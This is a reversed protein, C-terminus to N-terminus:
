GSHVLVYQNSDWLCALLCPNVATLKAKAKWSRRCKSPMLNAPDLYRNGRSISLLSLPPFHCFSWLSFGWVCSLYTCLFLCVSFRCICCNWVSVSAASIQTHLSVESSDWWDILLAAQGTIQSWIFLPQMFVLWYINLAQRHHRSDASSDSARSAVALNLTQSRTLPWVHTRPSAAFYEWRVGVRARWCPDPNSSERICCTLTLTDRKISLSKLLVQLLQSKDAKSRAHCGSPDLHM